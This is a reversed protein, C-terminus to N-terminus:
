NERSLLWDTSVDLRKAMEGILYLPPENKGTEYQSYGNQSIGLSKAFDKALYNKNRRAIRLKMGFTEAAAKKIDKKTDKLFYQYTDTVTVVGEFVRKYKRLLQRIRQIKKQTEVSYVTNNKIARKAVIGHIKELRKLHKKILKKLFRGRNVAHSYMALSYRVDVLRGYRREPSSYPLLVSFGAFFFRDIADSVGDDAEGNAREIIVNDGGVEYFFEFAFADKTKPM